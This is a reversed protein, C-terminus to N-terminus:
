KKETIIYNIIIKKEEVIIERNDIELLNSYWEDKKGLPLVRDKVFDINDALLLVAGFPTDLEEANTHDKIAQKIRKKDYGTLHTKDLFYESMECSKLEYDRSGTLNGIDHLLASIKGLEITHEDYELSRLIYEVTEVVFKTHQWGHCAHLLDKNKINIAEIIDKLESDNRLIEFNEM